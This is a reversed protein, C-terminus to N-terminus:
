CDIPKWSIPRGFDPTGDEKWVFPQVCTHRNPDDLPDGQIEKFGRAHYVLLDTGDPTTTFSIQRQISYREM